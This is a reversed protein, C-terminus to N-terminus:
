ILWPAQNSNILSTLYDRDRKTDMCQWFGTHMFAALEGLEVAKELPERELITEDDKIFDLFEPEIVFFGGNIWGTDTQPKEAFSAVTGDSNVKLEGFRATPRVATVTVMRGMKKHFRVLEDLDVDSLGDGYTLLFTENKLIKKLRKLRGGTMTHLGTDVLNVNWDVQSPKLLNKEGTKLNITFDADLQAADLFFKKVNDGKYGLAICFDKHGFYSYRNMIHWLIPHSGITVLPKPIVDTYEALRTGFGGALIVVM